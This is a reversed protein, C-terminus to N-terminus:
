QTGSQGARFIWDRYSAADQFNELGAAFGSRKFPTGESLSYIGVIGGNADLIMGWETSGTMPDRYIKRLHRVPDPYRPDSLLEDLNKPLRRIGGPTLKWFSDLAQRYQSGIFLLEREKERQVATHWMTGLAAMAIGLGAVLFLLGLLTFGQEGKGAM